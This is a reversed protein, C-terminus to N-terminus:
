FLKSFGELISIQCKKEYKICNGARGAKEAKTYESPFNENM